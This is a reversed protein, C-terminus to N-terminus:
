RFLQIFGKTKFGNSLEISYAYIGDICQRGNKNIGDWCFEGSTPNCLEYNKSSFVETGWRDYINVVMNKHYHPDIYYFDNIQDGNPTFVNPPVVERPGVHITKILVESCIGNTITQHIDYVGENDFTYVFNNNTLTSYSFEPITFEFIYDEDVTNQVTVFEGATIYMDSIEFGTEPVKYIDIYDVETYTSECGNEDVVYLEIDYAKEETFTYNVVEENFTEGNITWIYNYSTNSVTPTFTATFPICGETPGDFESLLGDFVEIDISTTTECELYYTSLIITHVGTQNFIIEGPNVNNSSQINANPGFDWSYTVNPKNTEVDFVFRNASICQYANNVTLESEAAEELVVELYSTDSCAVNNGASTILRVNFTGYDTFTHVPSELDTENESSTIDDFNWEYSDAGFSENAFDVTLDGCIPEVEFGAISRNVNCDVVAYRFVRDIENVVLGDEIAIVKVGMLFYGLQMPTGTIEGTFQNIEITSDSPIAYDADYDPLWNVQDFPPNLTQPDDPTFFSYTLTANPYSSWEAGLDLSLEEFLCLAIPPEENFKPSSLCSTGSISTIPPLIAGVSLSTGNPTQINNVSQAFCCDTFHFYYGNLSPDLTITGTYIAKELCLSPPIVVCPDASTNDITIVGDHTVTLTNVEMNSVLDFIKVDYSPDLAPGGGFCDRYVTLSVQYQNGGICTYTMDAGIFHNAFAKISLILFFSFSLFSKM